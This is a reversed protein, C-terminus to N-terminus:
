APRQATGPDALNSLRALTSSVADIEARRREESWDLEKAAVAAIAHLLGTGANGLRGTEAFTTRRIAVDALTMAMEETVARRVQESLRPDAPDAPARGPDPLAATRAPYDTTEGRGIQAAARDVAREAVLRATTYKVGLASIVGRVGHADSHDAMTGRTQRRTSGRADDLDAPILGQYAYLVDEPSLDLAPCALNLEDLFEPIDGPDSAPLDKGPHPTEHTGIILRDQWPTLFYMRGGRDVVADAPSRSVIGIAASGVDRRVVINTARAYAPFGAAAGEPLAPSVLRETASGACVLTVRAAIRATSGDLVDRVEAGNVSAGSVTLGTAEAHNAVHAGAEAAAMVTALLLRGTDLVQGDRWVGAGRLNDPACPGLIDRAEAGRLVRAAPYDSTRIGLTATNYIAAAASFAEPGKAGFGTLPIAFTLPRVLAPAAFHWWARERASARLRAFDLNQVYRIGGHMIKLSNHSTEGGFDAREILATKLGRLAADRAAMAGYIGAGIVLVDYPEAGFDPVATRKM